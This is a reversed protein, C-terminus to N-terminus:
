RAHLLVNSSSVKSYSPAGLCEVVEQAALVLGNDFRYGIVWIIGACWRIHKLYNRAGRFDSEHSISTSPPGTQISRKQTNRISPLHRGAGGSFPSCRVVDFSQARWHFEDYKVHLQANYHLRQSRSAERIQINQKVTFARVFSAM